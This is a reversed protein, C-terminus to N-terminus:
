SGGAKGVRLKETSSPAWINLLVCRGDFATLTMAEGVGDVFTLAPFPRPPELVSLSFDKGSPATPVPTGPSSLGSIEQPANTVYLLYFGGAIFAAAGFTTIAFIRKRMSM